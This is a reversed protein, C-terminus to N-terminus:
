RGGFLTQLYKAVVDDPMGSNVLKRVVPAAENSKNVIIDRSKIRKAYNERARKQAEKM